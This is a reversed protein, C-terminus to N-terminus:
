VLKGYLYYTSIKYIKVSVLKGLLNKKGIFFVKRNNETRGFLYSFDKKSFGEVLIKYINFLMKKNIESVNEIILKKIEKFRRKKENNDINDIMNFSITGQRPSYMFIYSYDFKIEKILDLTMLFDKETENPFGVIFDTSFLMNPRIYLLKYIIEKYYEITYKRGMLKLIKNSGSQVPLHLFNVLKSLYKYSNILKNNFNYPHSTTFRIRKIKNIKSILCLLDTFDCKIGNKFFSNYANVNQGLLNIEIIKNKSLYCIQNIISEPKRSLEFGRTFPVICYSCFKNCGEMITVFSNIKVNDSLIKNINESINRNKIDILRKKYKVFKIILNNLNQISKPGCIINVLNTRSFIKDKLHTALCGCLCVITKNNFIKLKKLKNLYNFVKLESKKRISCTNLIILNSDKYSDVFKYTNFSKLHNIIKNSDYLNM